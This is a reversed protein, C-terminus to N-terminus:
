FTWALRLSTPAAYVIPAVSRLAGPGMVIPAAPEKRPVSGIANLIVGSILMSGGIATAAIGGNVMDTGHGYECQFTLDGSHCQNEARTKAGVVILAVGAGAGIAGFITLAKGATVMTPSRPPPPAPTALPAGAPPPPPAVEVPPAAAAPPALPIISKVTSYPVVRSDEGSRVLYGDPVRDVLTGEVVGATTEIRVRDGVIQAHATSAGLAIALAGVQLARRGTAGLGHHQRPPEM